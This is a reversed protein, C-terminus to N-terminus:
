YAHVGGLFYPALYTVVFVILGSAVALFWFMESNQLWLRLRPTDLPEAAQKLRFLTGGQMAMGVLVMLLVFGNLSFFISAYANATPGFPTSVLIWLEGGAFILGSAVVGAMGLLLMQRRGVRWAWSNIGQTIGGAALVIVAILPEFIQPLPLEGQPWETSYLRLYFYSFILAGFITLLIAIMGITGWWGTAKSGSTFLPLNLSAALEEAEEQPLKPEIYMWSGIMIITIIALIGALLFNKALFCVATLLIAVSVMFPLYAPGPLYQVAQPRANTIDTVLTARWRSPRCDLKEAVNNLEM